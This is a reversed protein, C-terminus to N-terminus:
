APSPLEGPAARPHRDLWALCEREVTDVTWHRLCAMPATLNTCRNPSVPMGDCPLCAVGPARLIRVRGRHWPPDWCPLSPGALVLTPRGLAAALHMAGSHFGVFLDATRLLGIFADLGAAPFRPVGAPPPAAIDPRDVWVVEARAALRAALETCREAPWRQYDRSSGFHVVIRPRAGPPNAPLGPLSPPGPDPQWPQGLARLMTAAMEAEWAAFNQGPELAVRHTVGGKFRTPPADTGVRVRAGSTAALLRAVSTQDFSLFVADARLRRVLRWWRVLEWPRRGSRQLEARRVPVLDSAALTGAFLPVSEPSVFATIRWAPFDRRLAQVIPLFLVTDGLPSLKFFLLHM